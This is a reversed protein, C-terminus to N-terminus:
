KVSRPGRKIGRDNRPKRQGQPRRRMVDAVMYDLVEAQSSLGTVEKLYTLADRTKELIAMNIFVRKPVRGPPRQKTRPM